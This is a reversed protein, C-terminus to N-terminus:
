VVFIKQVYDSNMARLFSGYTLRFNLIDGTRYDKRSESVDFITHDSSAHLFRIKDDLPKLGEPLIDQEGIALIIRKRKGLNEFYPIRGFADRGITGIPKTPKTNCEVVEAELIHTDQNTKEIIRNGTVDTGLIISEGLRFQTIGEPLIGKEILAIAATNGASVVELSYKKAFGAIIAMNYEDPIVGGFCGLNTGIGILSKGAIERANKIAEDAEEYWVGERLDGVDVMFIFKTKPKNSNKFFQKLVEIESILSYDVIESVVSIESIQPIRLLMNPSDIGSDLIKKLNIVRSDALIKIGAEIFTRAIEPNGCTVKTVGAVQINKEKCLHNLYFANEFIKEKFIRIRPFL